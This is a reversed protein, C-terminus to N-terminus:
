FSCKNPVVSALFSSPLLHYQCLCTHIQSPGQAPSEADPLNSLGLNVGVCLWVTSPLASLNLRRLLVISPGSEPLADLAQLTTTCFGLVGFSTRPADQLDVFDLNSVIWCNVRAIKSATLTALHGFRLIRLFSVVAPFSLVLLDLKARLM